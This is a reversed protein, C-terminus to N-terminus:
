GELEAPKNSSFVSTVADRIADSLNKINDKGMDYVERLDDMGDIVREMPRVHEYVIPVIYGNEDRVPEIGGRADEEQAEWYEMLANSNAEDYSSCLEILGNRSLTEYNLNNNSM